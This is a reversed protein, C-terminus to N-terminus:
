CCGTGPLVAFSRLKDHFASIRAALHNQRTSETNATHQSGNCKIFVTDSSAPRALRMATLMATMSLWALEATLGTRYAYLLALNAAANRRMRRRGCRNVESGVSTSFVSVRPTEAQHAETERVARSSHRTLATCSAKTWTPDISTTTCTASRQIRNNSPHTM